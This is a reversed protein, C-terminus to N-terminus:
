TRDVVVNGQPNMSIGLRPLPTTAPGTQVRGDKSFRSGHCPCRIEGGRTTLDCARHTCTASLAYLKNNDRILFFGGSQMWRTDISQDLQAPPGLDFTTPGTWGATGGNNAACGTATVCLALVFERRNLTPM